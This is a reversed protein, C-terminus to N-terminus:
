KHAAWLIANGVMNKFDESNFLSVHHGMLFYVNRAAVKENIWVVPHDGMKVDSDPKYTSEDVRALVHVEPRPNKDFTYWEENNLVFSLNVNKMVPHISDEVLVTGSVTKAIYNKFKIGGMFGSFWQWMPYGDFDGLLTAHHFGVWGGKGKEIYEVFASKSEDSWTYPPFDLQLFVNYNNLFETNIKETNNIETFEFNYKKSFDTLWKLAAVTFGEHGGGREALVLVKFEPSSSEKSIQKQALLANTFLLFSLFVFLCSKRM